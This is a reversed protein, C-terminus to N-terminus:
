VGYDTIKTQGKMHKPNRGVPTIFLADELTEANAVQENFWDRTPIFSGYNGIVRQAKAVLTLQKKTWNSSIFSGKELASPGKVPQYRMPYLTIGLKLGFKLRVLFDEPTDNFNYLMFTQINRISKFGLNQLLKVGTEIADMNDVNDLATRFWGRFMKVSLLGKAKERDLLRFDLGQNFDVWLKRELIQQLIESWYPSAM